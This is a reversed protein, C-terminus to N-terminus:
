ALFIRGESTNKNCIVGSPTLVSHFFHVSPRVSFFFDWLVFLESSRSTEGVDRDEIDPDPRVEAMEERIERGKRAPLAPTSTTSSLFFFTSFNIIVYIHSWSAESRRALIKPESTIYILNKQLDCCFLNM